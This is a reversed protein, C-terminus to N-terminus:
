LRLLADKDAQQKLDLVLSRKNRNWTMFPASEGNVFPPMARASDGTPPEVKIVEAGHDALMMAAYPGSLHSTLDLVRLHDLAGAMLNGGNKCLPHHWLGAPTFAALTKSAPLM